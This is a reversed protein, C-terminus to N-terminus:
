NKVQVVTGLGCKDFLITCAEPPVRICGHSDADRYVRGVHLGVGGHIRMWLPMSAGVYKGGSPVRTGPTADSVVVNGASNYVSGYSRSRHHEKKEIIRFTGRPTEYRNKGTCVPFDMALQNHVYLKGRQSTLYVVIKSNKSNAEAILADNYWIDRTDRYDARNLFDDYTSSLRGDPLRPPGSPKQSCAGLVTLAVASFFLTRIVSIGRNM